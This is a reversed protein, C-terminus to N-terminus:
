CHCGVASRKPPQPLQLQQLGGAPSSLPLTPSAASQSGSSNGRPTKSNSHASRPTSGNSFIADFGYGLSAPDLSETNLYHPLGDGCEGSLLAQWVCEPPAAGGPSLVVGSDTAEGTNSSSGSTDTTGIRPTGDSGASGRGGAGPGVVVPYFMVLDNM